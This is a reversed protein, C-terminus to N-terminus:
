KIRMVANVRLAAATHPQDSRRLMITTVSGHRCVAWVENGNSEREYYDAATTDGHDEPLTRLLVGVETNAYAAAIRQAERLVTAPDIGADTLREIARDAAHM